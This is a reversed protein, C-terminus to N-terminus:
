WITIEHHFIRLIMSLQGNQHVSNCSPCDFPFLIREGRKSRFFFLYRVPNEFTTDGEPAFFLFAHIRCQYIRNILAPNTCQYIFNRNEILVSYMLGSLLAPHLHGQADSRVPLALETSPDVFCSVKGLSVATQKRHEVLM